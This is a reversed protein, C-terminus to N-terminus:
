TSDRMPVPCVNQTCWAIADNGWPQLLKSLVPAEHVL